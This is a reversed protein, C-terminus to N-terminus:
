RMAYVRRRIDECWIAPRRGDTFSQWPVSEGISIRFDRGSQRFMEDVLYLMEINAKIGVANRLSHIRYFRNSLEGEFYVPVVDRRDAVARRIFNPKWPLDTVVGKIRRSCLGAPFTIIPVESAFADSFLRAYEPNQRGHKNVPVFIPALPTLNMLIDNVVVRVEGFRKSVEDALMLGDAGGFPHNSAFIYRGAPDLREMGEAHYTIHMEKLCARVFEITPLDGFEALYRNVEKLHVVRSLYNVACRPVWRAAAPNKDKLVQALDVQM